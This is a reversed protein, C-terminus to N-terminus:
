IQQKLTYFYDIISVVEKTVTPNEIAKESM